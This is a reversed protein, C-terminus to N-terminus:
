SRGADAPAEPSRRRRLGFLGVILGVGVLAAGIATGTRRKAIRDRIRGGDGVDIAAFPMTRLVQEDSMAFVNGSAFNRFQVKKAAFATQSVGIVVAGALMIIVGVVLVGVRRRPRDESM